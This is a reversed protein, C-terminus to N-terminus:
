EFLSFKQIIMPWLRKIKSHARPSDQSGVNVRPFPIDAPIPRQLFECLTDWRFDEPMNMILLDEPRDKFYDKVSDTHTNLTNKLIKEDYMDSGLAKIRLSYATTNKKPVEIVKLHKKMSELWPKEPRTTLIFKSGPYMKDLKRFHIAVFLDSASDFRGIEYFSLPYHISNYGLTKLAESLSMTGTKALGIVFVKRKQKRRLLTSLYNM